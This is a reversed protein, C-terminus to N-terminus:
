LILVIHIERSQEKFRHQRSQRLEIDTLILRFSVCFGRHRLSFEDTVAKSWDLGAASSAENASAKM